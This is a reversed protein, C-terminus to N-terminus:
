EVLFRMKLNVRYGTIKKDRVVFKQKNIWAGQVNKVTESVKTIGLQIADEFSVTSTSNVELVKAITM